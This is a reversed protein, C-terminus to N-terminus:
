SCSKKQIGGQFCDEDAIRKPEPNKGYAKKSAVKAAIKKPGPNQVNPMM